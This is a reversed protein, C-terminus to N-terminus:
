NLKKEKRISEPSDAQETVVVKITIEDGVNVDRSLWKAFDGDPGVSAGVMLECPHDDVFGVVASLSLDDGYGAVCLQKGNLYIELARMLAITDTQSYPSKKLRGFM